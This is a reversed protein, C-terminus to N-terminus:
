EIGEYTSSSRSFASEDATGRISGYRRRALLCQGRGPRFLSNSSASGRRAAVIPDLKFQFATRGERLSELNHLPKRLIDIDADLRRLAPLHPGPAIMVLGRM